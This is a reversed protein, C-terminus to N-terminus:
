DNAITEAQELLTLFERPSLIAVGQFRDVERLKTDGTVLYDVKASVAAALVLDDEPHTAVRAVSVTIPTLTAESRLLRIASTVQPLTLSRQFYPKAFTRSVEGLIHHSVTLAFEDRRWRRILEGPVSSVEDEGSFGSVLVNSDLVALIV